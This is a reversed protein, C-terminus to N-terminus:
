VITLPASLRNLHPKDERVINLSKSLKKQMLKTIMDGMDKGM